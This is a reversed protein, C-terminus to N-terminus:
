TPASAGVGWFRKCAAEPCSAAVYRAEFSDKSTDKSRAKIQTFLGYYIVIFQVPTM